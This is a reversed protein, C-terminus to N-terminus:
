DKELLWYSLVRVGSGSPGKKLYGNDVGMRASGAIDLHAWRSEKVFKSLFVGATITGAEWNAGKQAINNLDSITGDMWDQYEEFFPLPWVRDGSQMGAEKLEEILSEDKSVMGAAYYGLAVVVAGTLTALDVIIQPKYKDEVYALADALVLRGEADTNGIEITLGNYAKVIDGPHVAKGSVMNEALAMVGVINKEVGLESACKIAGLVAAAGGMDTNMTEIYKTPKLNYGGSDFTIGKGVLAVFKDAAKGGRYEILVLKAPNVSGANVALLAGLGLKKLELENLTRVKLKESVLSKTAKELYVSNAVGAPENVLDRVWNTSQAIIKGVKIGKAFDKPNKSWSLALYELPKNKEKKEKSLYQAFNYDALIVGEATAQGLKQVPLIERALESINTTFGSYDFSRTAQVCKALLKRVKDLGFEKRKGLGLVMIKKYPLSDVRTIISKLFEKKLKEEKIISALDKNYKSYNHKDEEFLGLVLLDQTVDLKNNITIKM